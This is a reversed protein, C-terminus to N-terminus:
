PGVDGRGARTPTGLAEPGQSKTFVTLAEGFSSRAERYLKQAAAMQLRTRQLWGLALLAKAEGEKVRAWRVPAVHRAGAGLQSAHAAQRLNEEADGFQALLRLGWAYSAWVMTRFSPARTRDATGVALGLQEVGRKVTAADRRAHGSRGLAVGYAQRVYPERSGGAIPLALADECIQVARAMAELDSREAGLQSSVDCLEGLVRAHPLPGSTAARRSARELLGKAEELLAVEDTHAWKSQLLQARQLAAKLWFGSSGEGIVAMSQESLLLAEDYHVPSVELENRQSLASQINYLSFAWDHKRQAQEFSAAARQSTALGEAILAENPANLALSHLVAGLLRLSVASTLPHGAAVVALAQRARLESQKLLAGDGTREGERWAADAYTMLLSWRTQWPWLTCPAECSSRALPDEVVARAAELAPGLSLPEVLELEEVHAIADVFLNAMVAAPQPTLGDLSLIRVATLPLPDPLDGGQVWTRFRALLQLKGQVRSVSVGPALASYVSVARDDDYLSDLLETEAGGRRVSTSARAAGIAAVLEPISAASASLRVLVKAPLDQADPKSKASEGAASATREVNAPPTPKVIAPSGATACAVCAVVALCLSWAWLTM